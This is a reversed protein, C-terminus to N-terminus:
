SSGVVGALRRLQQRSSVQAVGRADPAKTVVVELLGGVQRVAVRLASTMSVLYQLLQAALLVKLEAGQGYAAEHDEKRLFGRVGQTTHPVRRVEGFRWGKRKETAATGGVKIGLELTAGHDELGRVV